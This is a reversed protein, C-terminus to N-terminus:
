LRRLLGDFFRIGTFWTEVRMRENKAHLTSREEGSMEFPSFRYVSRSVPSFQRSDTAGTQVYPTVIADPYSSEIAAKLLEWRPGNMRSVRAPEGSSLVGIVVAPDDVIRALRAKTAKVSSGIAIRVNVTAQVREPLANAALGGSLQTVATTTRVMAATEVGLRGFVAVLLPRFLRARVFVFRLPNRAHAGVTRIMTETVSNLRAPFPHANIRVIARALRDSATVRPPTSAHGGSQEVTLTFSTTGKESVGVVAIPREVTPIVGEVVAGGEDLVLGIEVGRERLLRAATEAGTGLTEEDHGFLLYVDHAPTFGAAVSREVAELISVVSGKDDLTGRGWLLREAGVGTLEASFPPHKWGEDTAAVVDYHAMLVSAAGEDLGRWRYLLTHGAVLERELAAHLAPYLQEVTAAFRQFHEWEVEDVELRSITPIRLLTRFRELAAHEDLEASPRRASAGRGEPQPTSPPTASM